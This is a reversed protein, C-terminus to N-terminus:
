RLRVLEKGKRLMTEGIREERDGPVHKIMLLVEPLIRFTKESHERTAGRSIQSGTLSLAEQGELYHSNKRM